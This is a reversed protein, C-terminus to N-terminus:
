VRVLQSVGVQAQVAPADGSLAKLSPAIVVM